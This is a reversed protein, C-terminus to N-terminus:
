VRWYAVKKQRRHNVDDEWDPDDPHDVRWSEKLYHVAM